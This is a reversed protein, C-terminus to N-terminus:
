GRVQQREELYFAAMGEPVEVAPACGIEALRTAPYRVRRTLADIRNATLPHRVVTGALRALWRVHREPLRLEPRSVGVADAVADVIARLECDNSVNFTRGRAAPHIGCALLASVVDNVHVYTAVAEERGVYFFWGRDVARLLGRVSDNPMGPGFVNSPRLITSTLLSGPASRSRVLRDAETKTEEYPGVPAEPSDETVTTVSSGGHVPGYAGVSSLQVWHLPHGCAKAHTAASDLLKQTGAVHLAYMEHTRTTEGACHYLVSVGDLLAEPVRDLLDGRVVAVGDAPELPSRSLIRVRHGRLRLQKVLGRGIFGTGGTVAVWGGANRVEAGLPEEAM